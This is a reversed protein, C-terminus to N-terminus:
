CWTCGANVSCTLRTIGDTHDINDHAAYYTCVSLDFLNRLFCGCTKRTMCGPVVCFTTWQVTQWDCYLVELRKFCNLFNGFDCFNRFTVHSIHLSKVTSLVPTFISHFRPHLPVHPLSLAANRTTTKGEPYRSCSSFSIKVKDISSVGLRFLIPLLTLVNSPSYQRSIPLGLHLTEIHRALSNPTASFTRQLHKLWEEDDIRICYDQLKDMARPYWHRSALACNKLASATSEPMCGTRQDKDDGLIDIILNYLETPLKPTVPSTSTPHVM